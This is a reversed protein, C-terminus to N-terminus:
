LSILGRKEARAQRKPRRWRVRTGWLALGSASTVIALVSMATLLWHNFDERQRYDMIHLMWFFDFLRWRSNRRSLIEGTVPSVYIHPSKPHDLVVRYVPMPKDGYEAPPDDELLEVSVASPQSSFVLAVNKTLRPQANSRPQHGVM